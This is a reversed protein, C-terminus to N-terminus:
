IRRNDQEMMWRKDGGEDVMKYSKKAEKLMKRSNRINELKPILRSGEADELKTSWRGAERPKERRKGTEELM